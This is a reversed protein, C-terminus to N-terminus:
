ERDKYDPVRRKLEILVVKFKELTKQKLQDYQRRIKKASMVEDARTVGRLYSEFTDGHHYYGGQAIKYRSVFAECKQCQVFIKDKEGPERILINRLNSSGCEQCTLLQVEM